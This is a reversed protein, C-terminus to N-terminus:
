GVASEQKICSFISKKIQLWCNKNIENMRTKKKCTKYKQFLGIEDSITKLCFELSANKM